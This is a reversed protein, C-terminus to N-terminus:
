AAGANPAGADQPLVVVKAAVGRGLALASGHVEVEVPGGHRRARVRIPSGPAIGLDELRRRASGGAWVLCVRYEERERAETLPVAGQSLLILLSSREEDLVASEDSGTSVEQREHEVRCAERHARAKRMGLLRLLGEASEHRSYLRSGLYSGRRTLHFLGGTLAVLDAALLDLLVGGIDIGTLDANARLREVTPPEHALELRYLAELCEEKAERAPVADGHSRLRREPGRPEGRGPRAGEGAAGKRFPRPHGWRGFHSQRM